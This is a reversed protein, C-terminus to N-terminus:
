KKELDRVHDVSCSFQFVEDPPWDFERSFFNFNSVRGQESPRPHCLCNPLHNFFSIELKQVLRSDQCNSHSSAWSLLCGSVLMVQRSAERKLSFRNREIHYLSFGFRGGSPNFYKIKIFRQLVLLMQRNWTTCFVYNEVESCATEVKIKSADLWDYELWRRRSFRGRGVAPECLGSLEM